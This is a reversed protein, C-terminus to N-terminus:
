RTEGITWDFHGGHDTVTLAPDCRLRGMARTINWRRVAEMSDIAIRQVTPPAEKDFEPALDVALNYPLARAYGPPLSIAQTLGSFQSIATPTYLIIQQASQPVPWPFVTANPFDPQLYMATVLTSALSKIRLRAWAQDDPIVKLPREYNDPTGPIVVTATDLYLPRPATWDAGSPGITYSAKGAQLNYVTGSSTFMSLRQLGWADVLANLAVLGAQAEAAEPDDDGVNYTGLLRLSRKILDLVTM